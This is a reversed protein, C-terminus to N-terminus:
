IKECYVLEPECRAVVAAGLCVWLLLRRLSYKLFLTKRLGINM